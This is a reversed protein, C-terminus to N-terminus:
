RDGSVAMPVVYISRETLMILQDNNEGGFTLNAVSCGIPCLIKGLLRGSPAIVAVGDEQGTYVNGLRDLKIGDPVGNGSYYFLRPNSLSPTDDDPDYQLDYAYISASVRDGCAKGTDTVYLIKENPSLACGNPRSLGEYVLMRPVQAAVVNEAGSVGLAAKLGDGWSPMRHVRGNGGGGDDGETVRDEKGGEAGPGGDSGRLPPQWSWVADPLVVRDPDGRFGQLRGYRNLSTLSLPIPM